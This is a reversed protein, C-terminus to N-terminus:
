ALSHGCKPSLDPGYSSHLEEGITCLKKFVRILCSM